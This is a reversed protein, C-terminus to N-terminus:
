KTPSRSLPSAYYNTIPLQYNTIPLQYSTVPLQYNAVRSFKTEDKLRSGVVMVM